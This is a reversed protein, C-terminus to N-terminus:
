GARAEEGGQRARFRRVKARNGCDSMDCWRRSRNRSADIFLWGCDDADCLKLRELEPATLLEVASQVLPWLVRDLPADAATVERWTWRYRTGDAVLRRQLAVSRWVKNLQELAEPEPAGGAGIPALVRYITERLARARAMVGHTEEPHEAARRALTALDLGHILDRAAAWRLLEPFGPLTDDAKDRKEWGRTHTFAVCDWDTRIDASM